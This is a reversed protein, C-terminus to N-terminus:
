LPNGPQQLTKWITKAGEKVSKWIRELQSESCGVCPWGIVYFTHM